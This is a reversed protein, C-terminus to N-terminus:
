IYDGLCVTYNEGAVEFQNSPHFTGISAEIATEMERKKLFLTSLDCEIM